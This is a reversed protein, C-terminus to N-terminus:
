TQTRVLEMRYLVNSDKSVEVRLGMVPVDGEDSNQPILSDIVYPVPAVFMREDVAPMTSM